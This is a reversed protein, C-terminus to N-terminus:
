CSPVIAEGPGAMWSGGPVIVAFMDHRMLYEEVRDSVAQARDSVSIVM